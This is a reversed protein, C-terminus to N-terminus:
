ECGYDVIFSFEIDFLYKFPTMDCLSPHVVM